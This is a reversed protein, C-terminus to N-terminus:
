FLVQLSVLLTKANEYYDSKEILCSLVWPHIPYSCRICKRKACSHSDSLIVSPHLLPGGTGLDPILVGEGYCCMMQLLRLKRPPQETISPHQTHYLFGLPLDIIGLLSEKKFVNLMIVSQHISSDHKALSVMWWSCERWPYVIM